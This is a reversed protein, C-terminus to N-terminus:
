KEKAAKDRQAQRRKAAFYSEFSKFKMVIESYLNSKREVDGWIGDLVCTKIDKLQWTPAQEFYWGPCTGLPHEGTNAEGQTGEDPCGYSRRVPALKPGKAPCNKCSILPFGVDDWNM